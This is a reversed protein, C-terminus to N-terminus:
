EGRLTELDERTDIDQRVGADEVDVWAVAGSEAESEILERGGTDGEVEALADFYAADFLVPNGREGEYRPVVIDGDGDRYAALLAEVTEVSVRPMDGLAFLAADAERKRAFEAALKVSTSQGDEFDTNYLVDVDDPLAGEVLEREHGVVAVVADVGSATLTRAAHSVVPEGDIEALLENGDGFRSGTGAALLVGLMM